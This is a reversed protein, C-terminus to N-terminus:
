TVPPPPSVGAPVLAAASLESGVYVVVANAGLVRLPLGVAAMVRNRNDFVAHCLALAGLCLGTM